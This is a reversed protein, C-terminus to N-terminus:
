LGQEPPEQGRMKAIGKNTLKRAQGYITGAATGMVIIIGHFMMDQPGNAVLYFASTVGVGAGTCIAENARVFTERLADNTIVNANTYLSACSTTVVALATTGATRALNFTRTLKEQVLECVPAATIDAANKKFAALKDMVPAAIDKVHKLSGWWKMGKQTLHGAVAGGVGAWFVGVEPHPAGSLAYAGAAAAGFIYNLKNNHRARNFVAKVDRWTERLEEMSKSNLEAAAFTSTGLLVGHIIINEYTDFVYIKSSVWQTGENFATIYRSDPLLSGVQMAKDETFWALRDAMFQYSSQLGQQVDQAYSNMKRCEQPFLSYDGITLVDRSWDAVNKALTKSTTFAEVMKELHDHCGGTLNTTILSPDYEAPSQSSLLSEYDMQMATEEPMLRVTMNPITMTTFRHLAGTFLLLCTSSIKNEKFESWLHGCWGKIFNASSRVPRFPVQGTEKELIKLIRDGTEATASSASNKEHPIVAMDGALSQLYSRITEVDRSEGAKPAGLARLEVRSFNTAFKALDPRASLDQANSSLADALQHVRSEDINSHHKQWLGRLEPSRLISSLVDVTNQSDALSSQGDPMMARLGDGASM